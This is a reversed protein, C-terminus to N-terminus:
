CCAGRDLALSAGAKLSSVSSALLAVDAAAVSHAATLAGIESATLGVQASLAAIVRVALQSTGRSIHTDADVFADVVRAKEAAAAVSALRSPSEAM